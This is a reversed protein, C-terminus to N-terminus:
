AVTGLPADVVPETATLTAPTALLLTLKVTGGLIVLRMGGAAAMADGIVILPVVKPELPVTVNKLPTAPIGVPHFEVVIVTGTGALVVVPGTTTVTAPTALLPTVKATAGFMVLILGPEAVVPVETVTVPVFKPSVPVIVNLPAAPDGVFQVPVLMVTETGALAKVPGTTTVTPPAALLM